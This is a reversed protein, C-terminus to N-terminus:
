RGRQFMKMWAAAPNGDEGGVDGAARSSLVNEKGRPIMVQKYPKVVASFDRKEEWSAILLKALDCADLIATNAGAGRFRFCILIILPHRLVFDVCLKVYPIMAHAADGLITVRGEPLDDPAYFELFRPQPSSIADPGGHRILDSAVPYLDKTMDMAFDYIEQKSAQQVWDSLQKPDDRRPMVAWFYHASSKDEAMSLMGIQQRCGGPAASVMAANGLKRLPEYLAPPLDVEGLMPVIKSLVPRHQSQGILQNMVHSNLGDAGVLLSGRATSGDEFHATVGTSDETYHKFHKGSSVPLNNSKWLYTRFAERSVRLISGPEGRKVGGVSGVKTGKQSDVFSVEDLDGTNHNVSNSYLNEAVDPPLLKELPPLCRRTWDARPEWQLSIRLSTYTSLSLWLGDKSAPDQLTTANSSRSPFM